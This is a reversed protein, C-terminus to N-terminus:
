PLVYSSFRPGCSFSDRAVILQRYVDSDTALATDALFCLVVLTAVFAACAATYFKHFTQITRTQM